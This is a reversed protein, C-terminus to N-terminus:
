GKGWWDSGSDSSSGGGHSQTMDAADDGNRILDLRDRDFNGRQLANYSNFADSDSGLRVSHLGGDAGDVSGPAPVPASAPASSAGPAAVPAAVPAPLALAQRM